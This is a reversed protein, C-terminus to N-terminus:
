RAPSRKAPTPPPGGWEIAFGLVFWGPHWRRYTVEAGVPTNPSLWGAVGVRGTSTPTEIKTSLPEIFAPDYNVVPSNPYYDADSPRTMQEHDGPPVIIPQRPREPAPQTIQQPLEIQQALVPGVSFLLLVLVSGVIRM